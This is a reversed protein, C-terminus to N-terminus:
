LDDFFEGRSIQAIVHLLGSSEAAPTGEGKIGDNAMMKGHGCSCESGGNQRTQQAPLTIINGASRSSNKLEQAKLPIAGCFEVAAEVKKLM